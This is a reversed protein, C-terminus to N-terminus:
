GWSLSADKVFLACLALSRFAPVSNEVLENSQQRRSSENCHPVVCILNEVFNRKPVTDNLHPMWAVASLHLECLLNLLKIPDPMGSGMAFLGGFPMVVFASARILAPHFDRPLDTAGWKRGWLAWVLVWALGLPSRGKPQIM